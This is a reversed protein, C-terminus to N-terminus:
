KSKGGFNNKCWKSYNTKNKSQELIQQQFRRNGIGIILDIKAYKNFVSNLDETIYLQVINKNINNQELIDQVIKLIEQLDKELSSSTHGFSSKNSGNTGMFNSTLTYSGPGPM